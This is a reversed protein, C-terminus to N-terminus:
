ARLLRRDGDDRGPKAERRAVSKKNNDGLAGNSLM